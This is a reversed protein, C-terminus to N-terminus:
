ATKFSAGKTRIFLLVCLSVTSIPIWFQVVDEKFPIIDLKIYLLWYMFAYVTVLIIGLFLLPLFVLKTKTATYNM